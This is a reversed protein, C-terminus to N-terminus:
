AARRLHRTPNPISTGIVRDVEEIASRLVDRIHELRTEPHQNFDALPHQEVRELYRRLIVDRVLRLAPRRHDFSGTVDLAAARLACYFTRASADLCARDAGRDWREPDTLLEQAHLLIERDIVTPPSPSDLRFSFAQVRGARLDFHEIPFWGFPAKLTAAPSTAGDQPETRGMLTAAGPASFMVTWRGEGVGPDEEAPLRTLRVLLENEGWGQCTGADVGREAPTLSCEM